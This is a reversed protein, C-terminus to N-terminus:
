HITEGDFEKGDKMAIEIIEEEMHELDTLCESIEELSSMGINYWLNLYMGRAGHDVEDLRGELFDNLNNLVNAFLGKSADMKGYHYGLFESLSYILKDDSQVASNITQITLLRNKLKNEEYLIGDMMRGCYEKQETLSTLQSMDVEEVSNEETNSPDDTM